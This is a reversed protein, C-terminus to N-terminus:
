RGRPRPRRHPRGEAAPRDPPTRARLLTWAATALVLHEHSTADDVPRGLLAEIRALRAHVSQRQVHMVAATRTPSTGHRLHTALTAVLDSGHADDWSLLPELADAVLGSLARDDLRSLLGPLVLDRTVSVAGGLLTATPLADRAERLSRGAEAVAVAPGVTVMAGEVAVTAALRGEPDPRDPVAVLGVAEGRVRDALLDLGGAHAAAAWRAVVLRPDPTSAAVGVVRAGPAPHFRALGARVLLERAGPVADALLDALLSVAPDGASGAGSAAVAVAAVSALRTALVRLGPLDTGPGAGLVVAGWEVDWVHVPASTVPRRLLRETARQDGVGAAAVVQGSRTVLAVPGGTAGAACSVVAPIGGGAALAAHVQHLVEDAMRLRVAEAVLIAENAEECIRIFPVVQGLVYLPLDARTAEDVIEGPLDPLSRGLELLVACVGRAALERVWHRRAGADVGSLGLGTTLLLDGATLLPGIEYIESSHAWRVQAGLQTHPVALVPHAAQVSPLLLFEALTLAM